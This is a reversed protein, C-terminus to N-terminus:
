EDNDSNCLDFELTDFGAFGQRPDLQGDKLINVTWFGIMEAVDVAFREGDVSGDHNRPWNTVEIPETLDCRDCTFVSGHYCRHEWRKENLYEM